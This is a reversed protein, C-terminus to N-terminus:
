SRLETKLQRMYAFDTGQAIIQQPTRTILGAEALRLAFFRLTEEPDVDPWNYTCMAMTETVLSEDDFLGRAVVDRAARAPDKAAADTAKLLARTVGRTAVPNQRAWERNVVLSCCFYQSWPKETMTELLVHGPARLLRKLRPGEAAGALVADARGEKFADVMGFYDDPGKATIFEVDTLRMGVWGLYTAFWAYFLDSIDKVRVSITKGRLDSVRTIGDRVWLELCGSHLGTLVRLPLGADIAGVAFESHACAFDAKNNTIWGRSTFPTNVFQVDTFGEQLLYDNALFLGPDCEVPYAIRVTTTELTSAESRRACAALASGGVIVAGTGLTRLL